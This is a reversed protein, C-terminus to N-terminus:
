VGVQECEECTALVPLPRIQWCSFCDTNQRLYVRSTLYISGKYYNSSCYGVVVKGGLFDTQVGCLM